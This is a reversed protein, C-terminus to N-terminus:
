QPIGATVHCLGSSVKMEQKEPEVKGKEWSLKVSHSGIQCQLSSSSVESGRQSQQLSKRSDVQQGDPKPNYFSLKQSERDHAIYRKWSNYCFVYM